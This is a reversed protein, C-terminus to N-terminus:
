TRKRGHAKAARGRRAALRAYHLDLCVRMLHPRESLRSAPNTILAFRRRWAGMAARVVQIEARIVAEELHLLSARCVAPGGERRNRM